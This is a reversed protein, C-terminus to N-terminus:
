TWKLLFLMYDEETQWTIESYKNDVTAVLALELDEDTGLPHQEIWKKYQPMYLKMFQDFTLTKM